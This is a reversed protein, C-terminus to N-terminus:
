IKTPTSFNANQQRRLHLIINAHSPLNVSAIKLQEDEELTRVHTGWVRKLCDLDVERQRTTIKQALHKKLQSLDALARNKLPWSRHSPEWFVFSLRARFTQMYVVDNCWTELVPLNSFCPQLLNLLYPGFSMPHHTHRLSWSAKVITKKSNLHQQQKMDAKKMTYLPRDHNEIDQNQYDMEELFTQVFFADHPNKDDSHVTCTHYSVNLYCMKTLDLLNM